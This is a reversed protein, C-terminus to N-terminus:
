NSAYKAKKQIENKEGKKIKKGQKKRFIFNYISLVIM